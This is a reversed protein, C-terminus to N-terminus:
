GLPENLFVYRSVRLDVDRDAKIIHFKSIHCPM